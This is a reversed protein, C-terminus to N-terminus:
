DVLFQQTFIGEKSTIKAFYVGKMWENLDLNTYIQGKSEEQYIKRGMLTFVELKLGQKEEPLYTITIFEDAPNPYILFEGPIGEEEDAAFRANSEGDIIKFSKIVMEGKSKRNDNALITAELEYEGPRPGPKRWDFYDGERDGFVAFPIIREANSFHQKGSLDYKVLYVNEASTTGVINLDHGVESLDIVDGLEGIEENTESNVLLYKEIKASNIIEFDIAYELDKAGTEPKATLSFSGVPAEWDFFDGKKDGFLSYPAVRERMSKHADGSLNFRVRKVKRDGGDALAVINIKGGPISALDIVDGDRLTQIRTDTTSNYLEFRYVSGETLVSALAADAQVFGYGTNFDFGADFGGTSEDDMDEATNRLALGIEEPSLSPDAELLLAAVAAIHPASASTGFFNPFGDGEVDFNEAPQFPPFFSTNAGDPGTIYPQERVIPGPLRNGIPDLFIAVGGASSFANIDSVPLGFESNNFYASAGVGYGGEAQSHGVCTGSFTFYEEALIGDGFEIYKLRRDTPGAFSVIILELEQPAGTTNTYTIFEIPVRDAINDFISAGIFDGIAPDFLYMDFDSEAPPGSNFPDSLFSPDPWQLWYNITGGPPVIINQSIDGGGFDHFEGFGPLLFGSPNFDAEYSERGSNGASSFYAVGQATVDTVAQAIVGDQFYPEALYFIDDVIIDCGANALARIGAAFDFYGNFASYFKLEAGPAVDHIIEAMGRGEDIGVSLFESLVEVPTAFGNPNGPGPLDGSAIGADAGGLTNFADSLIGITIGSGDIGRLERILDSRMSADGQSTVSGINQNPKFDPIACTLSNMERIDALKDMPIWAQVMKMAIRTNKAGIAELDSKLQEPNGNPIASVSILNGKMILEPGLSSPDQTKALEDLGLVLKSQPGKTTSRNTSLEKLRDKLPTQGALYPSFCLTFIAFGFILTTFKKM